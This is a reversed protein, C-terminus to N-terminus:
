AGGPRGDPGCYWQVADRMRCAIIRTNLPTSYPSAGPAIKHWGKFKTGSWFCETGSRAPDSSAACDIIPHHWSGINHSEWVRFRGVPIPYPCTDSGFGGGAACETVTRYNAHKAWSQYVRPPGGVKGQWEFRTGTTASVGLVDFNCETFTGSCTHASLYSDVIYWHQTTANYQVTLQIFESDGAHGDVPGCDDYYAALYAIKVIDGWNYPLLNDVRRAMWYPEGGGCPEFQDMMMVPAFGTALQFECTDSLFDHDIDPLGVPSWPITTDSYCDAPRIGLWLGDAGPSPDPLNSLGKAGWPDGDHLLGIDGLGGGGGEGDDGAWCGPTLRCGEETMNPQIGGGMMSIDNPASTEHAACAAVLAGALLLAVAKSRHM